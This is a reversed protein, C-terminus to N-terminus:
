SLFNKYILWDHSFNKFPFDYPGIIEVANPIRWISATLIKYNIEMYSVPYNFFIQRKQLRFKFILRAKKFIDKKFSINDFLKVTYNSNIIVNNNVLVNGQKIFNYIYYMNTYINFNFVVFNLRAILKLIWFSRLKNSFFYFQQFNKFKKINFFGFFFATKELEVKTKWWLSRRKIVSRRISYIYDFKLHSYLDLYSFKKYNKYKKSRIHKRKQFFSIRTTLNRNKNLFFLIKRQLSLLLFNNMTILAPTRVQYFSRFATKFYFYIKFFNIWFLKYTNKIFDTKPLNSIKNKFQDAFKLKFYTFKNKSNFFTSIKLPLKESNLLHSKYIKKLM